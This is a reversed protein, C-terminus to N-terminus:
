WGRYGASDAAGLPRLRTLLVRLEQHIRGCQEGMGAVVAALDPVDAVRRALWATDVRLATLHQGLEDHLERALRQREDEQLTLIQRSLLRRSAEAQELAGALHRLAAAIAELERIPMTPLERLPVLRQQEVSGIADLLSRLPRFSRRVNWGMVVLMLAASLAFLALMELLQELAERQESDPSALLRVRWVEGDPRQLPWSVMQPAPPPFVRGSLAM